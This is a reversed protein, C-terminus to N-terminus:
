FYAAQLRRQFGTAGLDVESRAGLSCRRDTGLVALSYASSPLCGHMGKLTWSGGASLGSTMSVVWSAGPTMRMGQRYGTLPAWPCLLM